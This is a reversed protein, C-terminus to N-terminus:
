SSSNLIRYVIETAASPAAEAISVLQQHHPSLHCAPDAANPDQLIQMAQCRCGGFDITKKECSRCPEEMWEQGRFRNFATSERWIWALDRDRVNAFIIEPVVDASHYPMARGAPDIPMLQRGWGGVCSKPYRAYYDPVV